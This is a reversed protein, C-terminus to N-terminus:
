LPEFTAHVFSWIGKHRKAASEGLNLGATARACLSCSHFPCQWLDLHVNAPVPHYWAASDCLRSAGRQLCQTPPAGACRKRKPTSLVKPIVLEEYLDVLKPKRLCPHVGCFHVILHLVCACMQEFIHLMNM